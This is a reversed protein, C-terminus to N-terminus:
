MGCHQREMEVITVRVRWLIVNYTCEKDKEMSRNSERYRQPVLIKRLIRNEFM